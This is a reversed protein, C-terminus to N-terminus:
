LQYYKELGLAKKRLENYKKLPATNAKVTNVLNTYVEMPINNSELYSEVSSSYNRARASSWDKKCVADYISAYTNKYDTYTGYHAEYVKKRDDQNQNTALVKSYNGNTAKIKEGNNLEIEPFKVDTTSISAYIDSPTGNFQSFYSLLTEKEEDLVHKQQRFLDEIGFRYPALESNNNLWKEMTEWPIELLEPNVWSTATGFKAFVIQVQQLKSAADQNRTDTDFTLQPYRYVKYSLFELKM